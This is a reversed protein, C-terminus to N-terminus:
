ISKEGNINEKLIEVPNESLRISELSKPYHKEILEIFPRQAPNINYIAQEYKFYGYSDIEPFDVYMGSNKPYERKFTNSKMKLTDLSVEVAWAFVRKGSKQIIKGIYVDKDMLSSIDVGTEEHFERYATDKKSEDKEIGGKPISWSGLDPKNKFFLGPHVLLYEKNMDQNYRFALIGCSKESM